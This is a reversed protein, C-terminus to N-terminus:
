LILVISYGTGMPIYVYNVYLAFCFSQSITLAIAMINNNNNNFYLLLSLVNLSDRNCVQVVALLKVFTM